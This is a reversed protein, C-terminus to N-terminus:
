FRFGFLTGQPGEDNLKMRIHKDLNFSKSFERYPIKDSNLTCLYQFGLRESEEKALELARAFQREDVDSFATSDHILFGPGPQRSAWRNALTLDYCFVEMKSVGDSDERDIEIDFNFGSEGFEIILNGSVNSGYLRRTYRNFASVAKTRPVEREELDQRADVLLQEKKISIDSLEKEIKRLSNLREKVAQLNSEIENKRSQLKNYEELAGHSKLIGMLQAREKDLERKKEEREEIRKELSEIESKLYEKRNRVIQKHFSKVENLTSKLSDDFHTGAEAYMEEIDEYEGADEEELSELYLDRIRRDHLNENSIKHLESTLQNAEEEIKSYEPHVEFSDLQNSLNKFDEALQVRKTELAGISGMIEEFVGSESAKKLKKLEDRRKKVERMEKAHEWNLGLLYANYMRKQFSQQQPVTKFPESYAGQGTRSFFAILSRFTPTYSQQQTSEKLGFMSRGLVQKWRKLSYKAVGDDTSNPDVPLRDWQGQVQIRGGSTSRSVEVRAEGVDLNCTFTWDDLPENDLAGRRKGGLCFQIIRILSTKGVGNRSSTSSESEKRDAVVVNFGPKLDVRRFTDGSADISYIM